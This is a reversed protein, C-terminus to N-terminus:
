KSLSITSAFTTWADVFQNYARPAHTFTVNKFKSILQTVYRQYPILKPDRAQWDRKTQSVILLSGEFVELDYANFELAVQRGVIYAEYEIVNNTCPFNLKVAIPIQQGQPLILVAGIGCGISNTARDFFLKWPRTM